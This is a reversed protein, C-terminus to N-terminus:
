SSLEKDIIVPLPTTTDDAVVFAALVAVGWICYTFFSFSKM